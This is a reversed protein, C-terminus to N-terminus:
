TAFIDLDSNYVITQIKFLGLLSHFLNDHSFNQQQLANLRDRDINFNTSAWFIFPIHTQEIPAIWYPMAHLYIGSEGLSEGHDSVYIMATQYIDANQELQVILKDLFYDTYLIINDYTNIIEQGECDGLNKSHCTPNFVAFQSPYRKYYAPGHNGKKHLIILKDQTNQAIVNQLQYLLVEDHCENNQCFPLITANNFDETTIRDCVGKCGGDNDRWLVEVHSKQLIDLVNETYLGKHNDFEERKFSSFMCPVSVSTETGCSYFQKFSYIDKRASLLPNTTRHYGNLSHNVARDSEGVVLVILRPQEATATKIPHADLINFVINKKHQFQKFTFKVLVYLPRVPNLLYHINKYNRVFSMYDKSFISLNIFIILIAIIFYVVNRKYSPYNFKCTLIALTPSIILFLVYLFLKYNILGKAENYDTAFLSQYSLSSIIHGYADMAYASVGAIVLVSIMFPKLTYKFNVLMLAAYQLSFIYITLSIIFPLNSYNLPYAAITQQWFSYNFFIMIAACFIGCATNSSVQIPLKKAIGSLMGISEM